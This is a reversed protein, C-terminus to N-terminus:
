RDLVGDVVRHRDAEGVVAARDPVDWHRDDAEDVKRRSADASADRAVRWNLVRGSRTWPGCVWSGLNRRKPQVWGHVREHLVAAPVASTSPTRKWSRRCKLAEASMEAPQEAIEPSSGRRIARCAQLLSSRVPRHSTGSSGDPPEATAASRGRDRTNAPNKGAMLKRRIEHNTTVIHLSHAVDVPRIPAPRALYALGRNIRRGAGLRVNVTLLGIAGAGPEGAMTVATRPWQCAAFGRAVAQWASRGPLSRDSHGGHGPRPGSLATPFGPHSAEGSAAM